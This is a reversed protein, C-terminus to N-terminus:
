GFILTTSSRCAYARNRPDCSNKFKEWSEYRPTVQFYTDISNRRHTWSREQKQLSSSEMSNEQNKTMEVWTFFPECVLTLSCAELNDWECLLNIWNTLLNEFNQDCTRSSTTGWTKQTNSMWDISRRSISNAATMRVSPRGTSHISIEVVGRVRSKWSSSSSSQDKKKGTRLCIANSKEFSHWTHFGHRLRGKENHKSLIKDYQKKKGSQIILDEENRGVQTMAELICLGRLPKSLLIMLFSEQFTNSTVSFWVTTDIANEARAFVSRQLCMLDGGYHITIIHKIGSFKTLKRKLWNASIKQCKLGRNYWTQWIQRPCSTVSIWVYERISTMQTMKASRLMLNVQHKWLVWDTNPDFNYALCERSWVNCTDCKARIQSNVEQDM